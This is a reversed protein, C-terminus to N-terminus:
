LKEEQSVLHVTRQPYPISIGEADFRKKIRLRLEREVGYNEKIDCKAVIRITVASDDLGVIGLVNPIDQLGKVESGAINMEDKLVEIVHEADEEYAVGVDVMANMFDRCKNTITSITGNPVIYVTGDIDRLRTTRITVNEVTGTGPVM